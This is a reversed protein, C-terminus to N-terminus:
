VGPDPLPSPGVVPQSVGTTALTIGAELCRRQLELWAGAGSRSEVCLDGACLRWVPEGAVVVVELVPVLSDPHMAMGCPHYLNGHHATPIICSQHVVKSFCQLLQTPFVVDALNVLIQIKCHQGVTQAL